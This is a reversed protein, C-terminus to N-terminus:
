HSTTSLDLPSDNASDPDTSADLCKPKSPDALDFVTLRESPAASALL